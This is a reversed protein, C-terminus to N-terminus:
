AAGGGSMQVVKMRAEIDKALLELAEKAEEIEQLAANGHAPAIPGKDPLAAVAEIAETHERISQTVRDLPDGAVHEPVAVTCKILQQQYATLLPPEGFGQSAYAADLLVAQRVNPWYEADPDAWKRAMSGSLDVVRGAAEATLAGNIKTMADDFTHPRRPKHVTM